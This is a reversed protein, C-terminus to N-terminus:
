DFVSIPVGEGPSAMLGVANFMEASGVEVRVGCSVRTPQLVERRM